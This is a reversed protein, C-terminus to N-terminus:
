VPPFHRGNLGLALDVSTMGRASVGRALLPPIQLYQAGRIPGKERKILNTPELTDAVYYRHPQAHLDYYPTAEIIAAIRNLADESFTGREVEIV